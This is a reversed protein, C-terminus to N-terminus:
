SRINPKKPDTDEGPSSAGRKSHASSSRSPQFVELKQSFSFSSMDESIDNTDTVHEISDNFEEESTPYDSFQFQQFDETPITETNRYRPFRFDNITLNKSDTKKKGKDSKKKKRLAAKAEKESLGPILGIPM